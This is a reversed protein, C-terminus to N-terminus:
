ELEKLLTEVSLNREKSLKYMAKDIAMCHLHYITVPHKTTVRKVRALSQYLDDSNFTYDLYIMTKTNIFSHGFKGSAVQMFMLNHRGDTYWEHGNPNAANFLTSDYVRHLESLVVNSSSVV